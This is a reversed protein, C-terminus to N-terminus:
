WLGSGTVRRSLRNVSIVLIFNIVSNFLGVASSFSWDTGAIGRRYVYSAIIDATDYIGANYLLIVKEAGLSMVRGTRMIFMIVITPLLSPLTIYLTRKWRGAGDIEAAEYLERDISVLASLYIISGWGSEQWIGSIVYIPKFLAPNNLMTQKPFGFYSLLTTILGTSQTFERIMGCVVVLSVFHPMYTITQVTRAFRRSRLENILLALIIPIPFGFLLNALSLTLTNRMLTGFYYSGFFNQFHKLGVWPSGGIGLSPKFDKFAIVAGYMPAYHFMVYFALVPIFLLYLERNFLLDRGLRKGYSPRPKAM